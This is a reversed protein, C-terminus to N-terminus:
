RARRWRNSEAGDDSDILCCRLFILSRKNARVQAFGEIGIEVKHPRVFLGHNPRCVFCQLGLAEGNNGGEM